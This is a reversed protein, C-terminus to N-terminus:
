FSPDDSNKDDPDEIKTSISLSGVWGIGSSHILFHLSPPRWDFSNSWRMNKDKVFPSSSYFKCKTDSESPFIHVSKCLRPSCNRSLKGVICGSFATTLCIWIFNIGVGTNGALVLPHHYNPSLKVFSCFFFVYCKVEQNTLAVALKDLFRGFYVKDINNLMKTPNSLLHLPHITPFRGRCWRGHDRLICGLGLLTHWEFSM